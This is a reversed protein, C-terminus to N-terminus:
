FYCDMIKRALAYYTSRKKMWTEDNKIWEPLSRIYSLCYQQKKPLYFLTISVMWDKGFNRHFLLYLNRRHEQITESYKVEKSDSVEEPPKIVAVVTQQTKVEAIPEFLTNDEKYNEIPAPAKM